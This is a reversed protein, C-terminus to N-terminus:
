NTKFVDLHQQCLFLWDFLKFKTKNQENEVLSISGNLLESYLCFLVNSKVSSGRAHGEVMAMMEPRRGQTKDEGCVVLILIEYVWCM